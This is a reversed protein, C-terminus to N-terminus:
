IKIIKSRDEKGYEIFICKVENKKFLISLGYKYRFRGNTDVFRRIRNIDESIDSNWETKCEIILLNYENSGRKHIILDPYVGNEYDSLRKSDDMNRNYENDLNYNDFYNNKSILRQLYIGFRFVVARENVNHKILYRDNKYLEKCAKEIIEDICDEM